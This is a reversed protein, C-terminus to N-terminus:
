DILWDILWDILLWYLNGIKSSHLCYFFEMIRYIYFNIDVTELPRFLKKFYTCKLISLPAPLSRLM